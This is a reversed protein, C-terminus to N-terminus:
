EDQHAIKPWYEPFEFQPSNSVDHCTLCFDPTQLVGYGAGPDDVHNSGPGHCSECSVFSLDPTQEHSQYGGVYPFGTTHCVLCDPDFEHNREVLSELAHAHRSDKWVATANAHCEGCATPGVYTGGAAYPAEQRPTLDAINLQKLIAQYNDLLARVTPLDPIKEDLGRYGGAVHVQAGEITIDLRALYKAQTGPAPATVGHLIVPAPMLPDEAEHAVVVADPAPLGQLIQATREATAHALVITVDATRSLEALVPALAPGPPLVEWGPQPDELLEPDLFGTIGLRVIGGPTEVPTVVHTLECPAVNVSVFPTAYSLATFQVTRADLKLDQEGLTLAVSGMVQHAQLTTEFKHQSQLGGDSVLDGNDAHVVTRGQARWARILSARRPLGGYQGDACGCPELEGAQENAVLLTLRAPEAPQVPSSASAAPQGAPPTVPARGEHAPADGGCAVRM